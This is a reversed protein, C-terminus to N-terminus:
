ELPRSQVVKQQESEFHLYSLSFSRKFSHCLAVERAHECQLLSSTPAELLLRAGAGSLVILARARGNTVAGHGSFQIGKKAASTLV